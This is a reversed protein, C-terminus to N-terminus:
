PSVEEARAQRWSRLRPRLAKVAYSMRALVTGVPAGLVRAIEKFSLEAEHRMLFVERLKPTLQDVAQALDRQLDGAVLHQDVRDQVSLTEPLPALDLRRKRARDVVMNRAIQFVWGRFSGRHQYGRMALAVKLLTEQYIDEADHVNGGSLRLLTRYVSPGHFEM